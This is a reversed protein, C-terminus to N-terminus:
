ARDPTLAITLSVVMLREIVRAAAAASASAEV